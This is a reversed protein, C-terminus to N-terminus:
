GNFFQLFNNLRKEVLNYFHFCLRRQADFGDGTGKQGEILERWIAV